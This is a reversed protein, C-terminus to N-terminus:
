LAKTDRKHQLSNEATALPEGPIVALPRSMFAVVLTVKRM